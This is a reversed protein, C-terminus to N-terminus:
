LSGSQRRFSRRDDITCRDRANISVHKTNLQPITGSILANRYGKNWVKKKRPVSFLMGQLLLSFIGHGAIKNNILM